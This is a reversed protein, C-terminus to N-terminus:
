YDPCHLTVEEIDGNHDINGDSSIVLVGADGWELVVLLGDKIVTVLGDDEVVTNM